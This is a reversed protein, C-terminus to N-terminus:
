YISTEFCTKTNFILTKGWNQKKPTNKWLNRCPHKWFNPTGGLDDMQEYPEGNNEGDM